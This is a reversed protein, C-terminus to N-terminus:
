TAIYLACKRGLNRLPFILACMICPYLLPYLLGMYLAWLLTPACQVRCFTSTAWCAPRQAWIAQSRPRRGALHTQRRHFQSRVPRHIKTKWSGIAWRLFDVQLGYRGLADPDGPLYVSCVRAKRARTGHSHASWEHWTNRHWPVLVWNQLILNLARRKFDSIQTWREFIKVAFEVDM